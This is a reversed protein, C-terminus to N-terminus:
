PKRAIIGYSHWHKPGLFSRGDHEEETLRHVQLGALLADLEGRTHTTIDPRQAWDDREGFLDVALWGGPRLAGTIRAWAEEFRSPPVFPLSFGAYALECRPYRAAELRAEVVTLRRRAVADAAMGNGLAGGVTRAITEASGPEADVAFM